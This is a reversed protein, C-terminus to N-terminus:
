FCSQQLRVQLPTHLIGTDSSFILWEINCLCHIATLMNFTRVHIEVLGNSAPHYSPVLALKVRNMKLFTQYEESVFQPGNDSVVEHPLGYSAFVTRLDNITATATTTTM